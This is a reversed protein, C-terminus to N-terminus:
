RAQWRGARYQVPQPDFVVRLQTRSVYSPSRRDPPGYKQLVGTKCWKYVTSVDRGTLRAAEQITILDPSLPHPM